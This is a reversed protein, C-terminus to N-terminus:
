RRTESSPQVGAAALADILEQTVVPRGRENVHSVDGFHDLPLSHFANLFTVGKGEMRGQFAALAAFGYDPMMSFGVENMPQYHFYVPTGGEDALTVFRDLAGTVSEPARRMDLDLDEPPADVFDAQGYYATGTALFSEYTTTFIGENYALRPPELIVRKLAPRVLIFDLLTVDAGLISVGRYVLRRLPSDDIDALLAFTKRAAPGNFFDYNVGMRLVAGPAFVHVPGYSLVAVDVQAGCDRLSQLIHAAFVPGSGGAGFKWADYGAAQLQAYDISAVSRSDGFVALGVRGRACALEIRDRTARAQAYEGASHIVREDLLTFGAVAAAAAIVFGALFRSSSSTSFSM